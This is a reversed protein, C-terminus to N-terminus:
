QCLLFFAGYFVNYESMGKELVLVVNSSSSQHTYTSSLAQSEKPFKSSLVHVQASDQLANSPECSYNGSDGLRSGHILLNSWGSVQLMAYDPSSSVQCCPM